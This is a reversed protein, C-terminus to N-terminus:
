TAKPAVTPTSTTRRTLLAAALHVGSPSAVCAVPTPSRTVCHHASTWCPAASRSISSRSDNPISGGCPSEPHPGGLDALTEEAEEGRATVVDHRRRRQDGVVGRQQEDVGPHHRELRVEETLDRRRPDARGAHLLAHPGRVDVDHAGVGAVQRKELHRAVEGEAVVELRPDDWIGPFQQGGADFGAAIAEVGLPDPRSDVEVVVLGEPHPGLDHSQRRLPHLPAALLVVVPVHAHGTGTTRRRLDVVVATGFVTSLAARDDVLLSVELDPVQDEHLLHQARDAALRVEVHGALKGALVDVGPQAEFPYRHQQLVDLVGELGVQQARQEVEGRADGTHHVPGVVFGVDPQPDHCVVGAGGRHEDGVPDDRAVFAAAVHQAPHQAADDPHKPQETGVLRREAVQHSLRALDHPRRVRLQHRADVV